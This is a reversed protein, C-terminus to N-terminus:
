NTNENWIIKKILDYNNQLYRLGTYITFVSVAFPANYVINNEFIFSSILLLSNLDNGDLSLFVLTFIILSLQVATKSKAMRSTKLSYGNRKMMIRLLTILLDRFLIATVMWLDILGLLYFSIFASSVLIKDALPDLFNGIETEVNYKRAYYGDYADTISALVFVLLAFFNSFLFDNFLLYIFLPTLFIRFVTLINPVNM